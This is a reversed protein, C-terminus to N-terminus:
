PAPTANPDLEPPLEIFDERTKEIFTNATGQALTVYYESDSWKAVYDEGQQAGITLTKEGENTLLTVIAQPADMGYDAKAEKGLPAKMRLSTIQNLMTTLTTAKFPEEANLGAMNWTGGEQTFDFSGNPNTLNLAITATQPLTVYIPDIWTSIAANVDFTTLDGTLYVEAQDGRRIHTAQAGASTGVYIAYSTGDQLTVELRREFDSDAVKLQPYSTENSAILRDTQLSSLQDLIPTIKSGDAPFQDATPVVWVDGQKALNSQTGEGDTITLSAVQDAQFDEILAGGTVAPPRPWFIIATLILQIVLIAGLIQNNRTM